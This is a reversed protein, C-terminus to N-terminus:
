TPLLVRVAPHAKQFADRWRAVLPGTEASSWIRLVGTEAPPKVLLPPLIEARVCQLGLGLILGVCWRPTM